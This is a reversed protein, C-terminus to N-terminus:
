LPQHAMEFLLISGAVAVNLSEVPQCMPIQLSQDILEILEASIGKGESGLVLIRKKSFNVDRYDDSGEAATGYVKWGANKMAKLKDINFDIFLPM